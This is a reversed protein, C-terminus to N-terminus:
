GGGRPATDEVSLEDPELETPHARDIVVVTVDDRGGAEVVQRVLTDAAEQPDVCDRLVTALQHDSLVTHLGDSCLLFREGAAAPLVWQDPCPAPDTGLAKTLINRRPHNRAQEPAIDGAAVLEAVESHDTTLQIFAGGAYRYARSDGVNFVVWHASGAVQVLGLGCITTGMGLREPHERVSERISENASVLTGRIDDATLHSRTDLGGVCTIALSSAAAGAAHGGMGDAVAFVTSGAFVQDENVERGPRAHTATGIRTSM